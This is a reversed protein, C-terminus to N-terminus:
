PSLQCLSTRHASQTFSRTFSTRVSTLCHSAKLDRETVVPVFSPVILMVLCLIVTLVLILLLFSYTVNMSFNLIYSLLVVPVIIAWMITLMYVFIFIHKATQFHKRKVNRNLTALIVTALILFLLYIFPIAIYGVSQTVCTAQTNIVPPWQSHDFTFVTKEKYPSIYFSPVFLIVQLSTIGAIITALTGDHLSYQHGRATKFVHSFIRYIRWSKTLITALIFSSALSTTFLDFNCLVTGNVGPFSGHVTNALLGAIFLYCGVFIFHNLQTSNAKVSPYNRYIITLIQFVMAVILLLGSLVLGITALVPHLFIQESKFKDSIFTKPAYTLVSGNCLGRMLTLRGNAQHISVPNTVHRRNSFEIWSTVGQFHVENFIVDFPTTITAFPVQFSLHLGLAMAWTADYYTYAYATESLSLNMRQGYEVLKSRYEEKVQGVSYNSVTVVDPHVSDLAQNLFISGNLGRIMADESCHDDTFSKENSVQTLVFKGRLIDEPSTEIFVFQYTPFVFGIETRAALCVLQCVLYENSLIIAIRISREIIEDLPIHTPSIQGAYGLKQTNNLAHVFVEYSDKYHERPEDSYLVAINEWNWEEKHAIRMLTEVLVDTSSIMGFALPRADHDESLLPTTGSYFVPVSLMRHIMNIVFISGESCAPGIITVPGQKNSLLGRLISVMSVATRSTETYCGTEGVLVKRLYHNPLIDTRNNIQEVALQVAPIISHGRNVTDISASDGNLQPVLVLFDLPWQSTMAAIDFLAVLWFISVLSERSHSLASM